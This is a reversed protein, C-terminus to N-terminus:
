YIRPPIYEQLQLYAKLMIGGGYSMGVMSVNQSELQYVDLLWQYFCIFWEVNIASIDLKKLPPISPIFVRYGNQALVIGLMEMQPHEESIPSAGPYLIIVKKRYKLPAIIKVPPCIGNLGEYQRKEVKPAYSKNESYAM